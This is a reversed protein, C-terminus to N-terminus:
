GILALVSDLLVQVGREVDGPTTYEEPCHSRGKVSPVFVMGVPAIMALMCSDHVAGSYMDMWSFGRRQAADRITSTFEGSCSVPDSASRPSIKAELGRGGAIERILGEVRELHRPLHEGCPDRLDVTFRVMGPIVNPVNPSVSVWGLTLVTAPGMERKATHELRVAAEAMCALADRRGQMPTAGAHNATGRIEVDIQRIGAIGEVVGISVGAGDLVTGQEIHLQLMGLIAGTELRGPLLREGETVNRLAEGYTIGDSDRLSLLEAEKARGSLGCSGVTGAGFRFGEEEAFIVVELSRAIRIGAEHICRAAEIAGISGVVGDFAGGHPVSDIHSGAVLPPLGPERGELSGHINGWQDTVVRLGAERMRAAVYRRAMVDERSFTLRTVGAGPTATYGALTQIDNWIREGNVRVDLM